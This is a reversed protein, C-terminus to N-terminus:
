FSRGRVKSVLVVIDKCNCAILSANIRRLIFICNRRVETKLAMTDEEINPKTEIKIKTENTDPVEVPEEKISESVEVPEEQNTTGTVLM